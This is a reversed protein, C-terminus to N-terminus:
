LEHSKSNLQKVLNNYCATCIITKSTAVQGIPGVTIRRKKVFFKNKGCGACKKRKFIELM